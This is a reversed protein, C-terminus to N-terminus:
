LDRDSRPPMPGDAGIMRLGKQATKARRRIMDRRQEAPIGPADQPGRPLVKRRDKRQISSVLDRGSGSECM